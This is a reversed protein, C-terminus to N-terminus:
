LILLSLSFAFDIQNRKEEKTLTVSEGTTGQVVLYDVGGKLLHEILKETAPYDISKDTNFPTVVAVGTGTLQINM